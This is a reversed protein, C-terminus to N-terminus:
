SVGEGAPAELETPDYYVHVEAFRDGTIRIVNAGKLRFAVGNHDRFLSRWEFAGQDGGEIAGVINVELHPYRDVSQQYFQRIQAHGVLRGLGPVRLEAKEDYCALVADVDRTCEIRWYNEVVDRPTM